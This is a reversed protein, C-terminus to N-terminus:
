FWNWQSDQMIEKGCYKCKSYLSCGDSSYNDDPVHWGLRDHYYWKGIGTRLYLIGFVLDTVICVAVAILVTEIM